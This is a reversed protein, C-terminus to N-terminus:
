GVSTNFRNGGPDWYVLVECGDFMLLHFYSSTDVDYCRKEVEALRGHIHHSDRTPASLLSIAGRLNNIHFLDAGKPSYSRGIPICIIGGPEYPSSTDGRHQEGMVLLHHM